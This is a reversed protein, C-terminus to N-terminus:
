MDLLHSVLYSSYVGDLIADVDDHKVLWCQGEHSHLSSDKLMKTVLTVPVVLNNRQLTATSTPPGDLNAVITEKILHMDASQFQGLLGHAASSLTEAKVLYFGLHDLQLYTPHRYHHFLVMLELGKGISITINSSPSVKLVLNPKKIFAPQKAPITLHGESQINIADLTINIVYNIRPKEILITIIDFYTRIRDEHGKKFPAALLHGNVTVGAIPDSLLRLIDDPRGDVTFCLKDQSSPLRVVFHPDGDASSTFSQAGTSGLMYHTDDVDAFDTYDDYDGAIDKDGIVDTDTTLFSYMPPPNLSEVFMMDRDSFALLESEQMPDLLQLSIPSTSTMLSPLTRVSTGHVSDLGPQTGPLATTNHPITPLGSTTNLLVEAQAETTPVATAVHIHTVATATSFAIPLKETRPVSPAVSVPSHPHHEATPLSTTDYQNLTKSTQVIAGATPLNVTHTTKPLLLPTETLPAGKTSGINGKTVPAPTTKPNGPKSTSPIAGARTTKVVPKAVRPASTAKAKPITTSPRSTTSATTAKTTSPALTTPAVLTVPAASTSMKLRKDREVQDPKVVIMSTVPTVFNYKLSLNTAKETLLRRTTTDNAKIRAQLLDQITFYAWLRQVFIQIQDLDESCGFTPESANGTVPIDNELSVRDKYNQATMRIQLDAVGPKVKGAVVLESGAFYNPFLTQTVDQVSNGLYALQIDYLLPSAIEDYFGKLQLTADADEYIRRAVGRNDLSLRRMLNYDADDGFALGFLSISGGMAQRANSLIRGATTVGSTPEGDTLFIILPIKKKAKAKEKEPLTQNFVSAAALLAANIDTWGEAEIRNVYDKAGKINQATAQISPGSKWVNVTDSFTILNFYDDQHLDSLIVHMAKKTQKIKTGYMSGSVDIVFVVNKQVTPLGRPAFYHVFYGNYIQVDGALDNMNVDYQVVFDAMIGTRSYSAQESPSPSFTVRACNTGKEIHTSPPVEAEGRLTNTLLRSTRLPLVRVYEIGTRESITVEVTLNQVVQQPRISVAHQYKGLHRQLLEEYILTFAIEEGAEMNVMVRFKDIERDRTGIHAATKGQMRAEDYIRKAQLKEKVEAVYDKGNVTLTFNSVFATNPLDLDFVAEKAETHPNVMICQVKTLAYRSVISTEVHFSHINLETKPARAQRKLRAPQAQRVELPAAAATGLLAQFLLLPLVASRLTASAM